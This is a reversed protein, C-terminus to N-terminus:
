NSNLKSNKFIFNVTDWIQMKINKGRINVTKAGFEVGVTADHDVRFKKDVFQLLLCSKGVGTKNLFLIKQFFLILYLSSDGIIIYKFLYSYSSM